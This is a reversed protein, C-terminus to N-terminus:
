STKQNRVRENDSSVNEYIVIESAIIEINAQLGSVLSTRQFVHYYPKSRTGASLLNTTLLEQARNVITGDIVTPM